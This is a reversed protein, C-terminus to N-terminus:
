LVNIKIDSDLPLVDFELFNVFGDDGGENISKSLKDDFSVVSLDISSNKNDM